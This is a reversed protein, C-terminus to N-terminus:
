GGHSKVLKMLTGRDMGLRRAAEIQSSSRRFVYEAYWRKVQEMTWEGDVLKKPLLADTSTVGPENRKPALGLALARVVLGLERVNGPWAYNPQEALWQKVLELLPGRESAAVDILIHEAILPIDTPRARLPPIQIIVASLRHYLDRRFVDQSVLNPLSQHTASLIRPRADVDVLAGLRRVKGEQLCRLLAVQTSKPLEAIEDFFVAGAHCKELIGKQEKSATSHAGKEHGFLADAVLAEPISGLHVAEFPAPSWQGTKKNWVGQEARGLAQGILEKGTGTEGQILVPTTRILSARAVTVALSEGFAAAWTDRRVERMVESDGVIADLAGRVATGRSALEAVVHSEKPFRDKLAFLVLAIGDAPTPSAQSCAVMLALLSKGDQMIAPLREWWRLWADPKAAPEPIAQQEEFPLRKRRYDVDYPNSLILGLAAEASLFDKSAAMGVKIKDPAASFLLLCQRFDRCDPKNHPDLASLLNSEGDTYEWPRAQGVAHM